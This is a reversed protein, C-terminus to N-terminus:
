CVLQSTYRHQVTVEGWYRGETLRRRGGGGIGGTQLKGVRLVAGGNAEGRLIIGGNVAEGM